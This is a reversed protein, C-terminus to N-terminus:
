QWFTCLQDQSHDQHRLPGLDEWEERPLLPVGLCLQEESWVPERTGLLLICLVAALFVLMGARLIIKRNMKM